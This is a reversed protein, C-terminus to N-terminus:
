CRFECRENIQSSSTNGTSKESMTTTPRVTESIIPGFLFEPDWNNWHSFEFCDLWVAKFDSTPSGLGAVLEFLDGQM